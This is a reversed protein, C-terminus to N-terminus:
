KSLFISTLRFRESLVCGKLNVTLTFHGSSRVDSATVAVGRRLSTNQPERHHAMWEGISLACLGLGCARVNGFMAIVEAFALRHQPVRSGVNVGVSQLGRPEEM